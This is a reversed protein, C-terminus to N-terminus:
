KEKPAFFTLLPSALLISSYAGVVTGLLLVLSLTQTAAPGVAYLAALVVILTISTLLSRTVTQHISAGVITGFDERVNKDIQNNLNERIRDFIVITNNISLALISLLGVVYLTDVPVDLLTLLAVPVFIDHLLAVISVIGYKWSSVPKSVKRFAYAIFLLISLSVAILAYLSKIQLQKGVSPGISNFREVSVQTDGLSMAAVLTQREEEHLSHTRVVYGDEGFPQILADYFGAETVSNRVTDIEPLTDNYSVELISGGTFEIGYRLGHVGIFVLSVLTISLLIGVFWKRKKIIYM